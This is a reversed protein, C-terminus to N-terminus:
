KSTKETKATTLKASTNTTRGIRRETASFPAWMPPSYAQSGCTIATHVKPDSACLDELLRVEGRFPYLNRRTLM